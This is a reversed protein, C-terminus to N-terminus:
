RRALPLYLMFPTDIEDAGLDPPKSVPQPRNDGDIDITVETLNGRDVAASAKSIHYGDAEFQASGEFHGTENVTGILPTTNNDWLTNHLTATCMPGNVQVGTTNDALITNTFTATSSNDMFVGVDNRVITSHHASLQATNVIILGALDNDSFVTNKVLATGADAFFGVGSTHHIRCQSMESDNSSTDVAHDYPSGAYSIECYALRIHSNNEGRIRNWGSDSPATTQRTFRIRQSPTGEAIFTGGNQVWIQQDTGVMITSGPTVTLIFPSPVDLSTWLYIPAGNLAAPSSDLTVNRTLPGGNTLLADTGNDHFSLKHYSPTMDATSQVLPYLTNHDVELNQFQGTFGDGNLVIGHGQNHHVRSHNIEFDSGSQVSLARNYAEGAYAIEVYDMHVTSGNWVQIGVWDGISPTAVNSTFLIKEDSTGQAILTGYILLGQTPNVYVEVGPRINVTTGAAVAVGLVIHLNDEPCWDQNTNIVDYHPGAVCNYVPTNSQLPSTTFALSSCLIAVVAVVFQPRLLQGWLHSLHGTFAFLSM